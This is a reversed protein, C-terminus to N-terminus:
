EPTKREIQRWNGPAPPPQPRRAEHNKQQPNQHVPNPPPAPPPPSGDLNKKEFFFFVGTKEGGTPKPNLILFYNLVLFGFAPFFRGTSLGEVQAGRPQRIPLISFPTPFFAGGGLSCRAKGGPPWLNKTKGRKLCGRHACIGSFKIKAWNKRRLLPGM